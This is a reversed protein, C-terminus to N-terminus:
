KIQITGNPITATNPAVRNNNASAITGGGLNLPISNDYIDNNSIRITGTVSSFATSNNTAQSNQVMLIGNGASILFATGGSPFMDSVVSRNVSGVANNTALEVGATTAGIIHSNDVSVVAFGATPAMRIGKNLRTMTVNNVGLVSDAATAVEIGTGTLAFMTVNEVMVERAALVRVGNVGTTGGDIAVNRIVVKDTAAANVTFAATLGSSLVGGFTGSCDVTISKNITLTGYAGADICNIEGGAATVSLAKSFTKCPATRSCPNIDDGVGSVWTRSQAQAPAALLLAFGGAALFTTTKLM